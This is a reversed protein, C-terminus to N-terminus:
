IIGAGLIKIHIENGSIILGNGANFVNEWRSKLAGVNQANWSKPTQYKPRKFKQANSNQGNSCKHMQYKQANSKKFTQIELCIFSDIKVM